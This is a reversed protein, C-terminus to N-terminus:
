ELLAIRGRHPVVGNEGTAAGQAGTRLRLEDLVLEGVCADKGCVWSVSLGPGEDRPQHSNHLLVGLESLCGEGLNLQRCEDGHRALRVANAIQHGCCLEQRGTRGGRVYGNRCADLRGILLHARHTSVQVGQSRAQLLACLEPM